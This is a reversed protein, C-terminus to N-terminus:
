SPGMVSLDFIPLLIALIISLVLGGLVLIMIPALLGTWKQIQVTVHQEYIDALRQFMGALDGTHEGMALMTGMLPPVPDRRQLTSSLSAGERVRQITDDLCHELLAHQLVPQSITLAQL